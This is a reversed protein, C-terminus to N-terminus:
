RKSFKARNQIASAVESLNRCWWSPVRQYKRGDAGTVTIALVPIELNYGGPPYALQSVSLHYKEAEGQLQSIRLVNKM